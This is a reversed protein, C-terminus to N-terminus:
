QKILKQYFVDQGISLKILYTGPPLDQKINMDFQAQKGRISIEQVQITRGWVDILELQALQNVPTEFDIQGKIRDRFPNPFVMMRFPAYIPEAEEIGVPFGGGPEFSSFDVSVIGYCVSVSDIEEQLSDLSSNDQSQYFAITLDDMKQKAWIKPLISLESNTTDALNVQFNYVVPANFATGSLTVDIAQSESYRGSLILQQGIYLNPLLRPYVELAIDPSIELSTNVLVPNNITLFFDSVDEALTASEICQMIGNNQIAIQTLLNKSAGEGIALPFIYIPQNLQSAAQAVDSLINSSPDQGDTFFLIINARLTDDVPFTSISTTLATSINTGGGAQIGSIFNLANSQTSANFDVMQGFHSFAQNSFTIIDFQDGPNLNNIIFIAADKAQQIKDGGMSGSKDIVLSFNKNIVAEQDSIDPEIIFTFFGQGFTDCYIDSAPIMSSLSILGLEDPSLEYEIEFDQDAPENTRHYELTSIFSDILITASLNNFSLDTITRDSNLTYNLSQETLPETQILSINAPFLYLVSGLSYSLLEVYTLEILISDGSELTEPITFLLPTDGLFQVLQNDLVGTQGPGSGPISDNQEQASIIAEEWEGNFHWRLRIPNTTEGLNFGYRFQVATDEPNTFLQSSITKAIQNNVNVEVNSTLTTLYVGQVGDVIGVGNSKVHYNFCFFYIVFFTFRLKM